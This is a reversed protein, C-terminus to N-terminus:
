NWDLEVGAQYETVRSEFFNKEKPLDMIENMWPFPTDEINYIPELGISEVRRDAIYRIYQQFQAIKLGPINDKPICDAVFADELEVVHKINKIVDQQVDATWIGDEEEILQNILKTGFRCHLSEDRVIYELQEATGNMLNRRKFNLLLVFASYFQMGEMGLYYSCLNKIFLQKNETTNTHFDPSLIGDMFEKQFDHKEKIIGVKKFEGFVESQDMSLSEVIHSYSWTHIAEQFSQGTLYQRCEPNTVYKYISLIINDCVLIDTNAFFALIKKILHKEDEDLVGPTKWQDLDRTMPVEQPLWHNACLNKFEDWAWPYKFPMLQTDTSNLIM